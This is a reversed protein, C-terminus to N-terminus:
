RVVIEFEDGGSHKLRVNKKGHITILSKVKIDQYRSAEPYIYFMHFTRQTDNLLLVKKSKFLSNKVKLKKNNDFQSILLIEYDPFINKVEDNSLLRDNEYFKLTDENYNIIKNNYEFTYCFASSTLLLALTFIIKKM